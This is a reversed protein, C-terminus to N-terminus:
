CCLANPAFHTVKSRVSFRKCYSCYEFIIGHKCNGSPNPVWLFSGAWLGSLPVWRGAGLLMLSSPSIVSAFVVVKLGRQAAYQCTFWTGKSPGSIFAVVGASGEVLARSRAFLAAIYASRHSLSSAIGEVVKGGYQIFRSLWFRVPLSVSFIDSPLYIVSAICQHLQVLAKLAFLDAGFAGGSGIAYGRRLLHSVVSRVKGSMDCALSRSGVICIYKKNIKSM